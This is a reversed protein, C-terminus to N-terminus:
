WILVPRKLKGENNDNFLENENKNIIFNFSEEKNSNEEIKDFESNTEIKISEEEKNEEKKEGNYDLDLNDICIIIKNSIAEKKKKKKLLRKERKQKKYEILFENLLKQNISFPFNDEFKQVMEMAYFLNSIPEWTCCSIPYGVWKILYYNRKGDNRKTIINEIKYFTNKLHRNTKRCRFYKM